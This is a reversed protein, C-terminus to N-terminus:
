LKYFSLYTVGKKKGNVTMVINEKNIFLTFIDDNLYEDYNLDTLKINIFGKNETNKIYNILHQGNTNFYRINQIQNKQNVVISVM